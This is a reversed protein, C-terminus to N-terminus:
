RLLADVADAAERQLNPLLHAYTNLTIGVDAHGLREAVVKPHIGQMLLMTAHTHRLGHFPIHPVGAMREYKAAVRRITTTQLPTGVESAFVYHGGHIPVPLHIRGYWAAQAVKHATLVAVSSAGLTITRAGALSKTDEQVVNRGRVEVIDRRVIARGTSLDVDRWRLGMLEGRRMGTALATHFLPYLPHGAVSALFANAQEATWFPIESRPVRPPRVKGAPNAALMGYTVAQSCVRHIATHLHKVTKPALGRRQAAALASQIHTPRLDTLKVAGIVPWAHRRLSGEYNAVTLPKLNLEAYDALWQRSFAEFTVRSPETYTGAYLESMKEHLAREAEDQTRYTSYHRQEQGNPKHGTIIIVQWKDGRQKIRGKM